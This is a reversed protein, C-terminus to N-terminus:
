DHPRWRPRMEQFLTQVCQPVDIHLHREVFHQSKSISRPSAGYCGLLWAVSNVVVVVWLQRGTFSGLWSGEDRHAGRQNALAAPVCRSSGRRPSARHPCLQSTTCHTCHRPLAPLSPRAALAATSAALGLQSPLWAM